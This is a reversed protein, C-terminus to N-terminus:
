NMLRFYGSFKSSYGTENCWDVLDGFYNLKQEAKRISEQDYKKPDILEFELNMRRCNVNRDTENDSAIYPAEYEEGILDRYNFRFNQRKSHKKRM